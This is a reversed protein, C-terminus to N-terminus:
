TMHFLSKKSVYYFYFYSGIGVYSGNQLYDCYKQVSYSKPHVKFVIDSFVINAQHSRM